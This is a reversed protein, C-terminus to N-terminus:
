SVVGPRWASICAELRARIRGSAFVRHDLSCSTGLCPSAHALFAFPRMKRPAGLHRGGEGRLDEVSVAARLGFRCWLPPRVSFPNPLRTDDGACTTDTCLAGFESDRDAMCRDLQQLREEDVSGFSTIM